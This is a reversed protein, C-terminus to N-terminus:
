WLGQTCGVGIAQGGSWTFSEIIDQKFTLCLPMTQLFGPMTIPCFRCIWIQNFWPLGVHFYISGIGALWKQKSTSLTGFLWCFAPTLPSPSFNNSTDFESQTNWNDWKLQELYYGLSLSAMHSEVQTLLLLLLVELEQPHLLQEVRGQYKPQEQRVKLQEAQWPKFIQRKFTWMSEGIRLFGLKKHMNMLFLPCLLNLM